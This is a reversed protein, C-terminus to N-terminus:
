AKPTPSPTPSPTSTRTSTPSPTSTTTPTPTSTTTPTPSPTTTTTTTTTPTATSTTSATPSPTNTTTSTSTVHKPSLNGRTASTTYSASPAALSRSSNLVVLLGALSFLLLTISLVGVFAWTATLKNCMCFNLRRTKYSGADLNNKMKADKSLCSLLECPLTIKNRGAVSQTRAEGLRDSLYYTDSALHHGKMGM